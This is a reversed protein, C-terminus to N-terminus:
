KKGREFICNSMQGNHFWTYKGLIHSVFHFGGCYVIGKVYIEGVTFVPLRGPTLMSNSNIEM